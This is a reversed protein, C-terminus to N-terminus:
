NKGGRINESGTASLSADKEQADLEQSYAKLEHDKSSATTPTGVGLDPIQNAANHLAFFAEAVLQRKKDPMSLFIQMVRRQDDNMSYKEVLQAIIQDDTQTLMDGNGTRLWSESIDLRSCVLQIFPDDPTVIGSEYKSYASRSVGFMSSFEEQTKKTHKRIAKLRDKFGESM